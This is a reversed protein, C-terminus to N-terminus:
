NTLSLFCCIVYELGFSFGREMLWCGVMAQTEDLFKCAADCGCDLRIVHVLGGAVTSLTGNCMIGAVLEGNDIIVKTDGASIASGDSDPHHSSYKTLHVGHPILLSFLQKGTWLTRPKLIAPIPVNGNFSELSTLINMVLDQFFNLKLVFFSSFSLFFAYSLYSSSYNLSYSHILIFL